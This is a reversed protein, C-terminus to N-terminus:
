VPSSGVSLQNDRRAVIMVVAGADASRRIDQLEKGKSEAEM